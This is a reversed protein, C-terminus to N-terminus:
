GQGLVSLARKGIPPSPQFRRPMTSATFWFWDRKQSYGPAKRKSMYCFFGQKDVNDANVTILEFTDNM